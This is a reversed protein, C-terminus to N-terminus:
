ARKGRQVCTVQKQLGPSVTEPAEAVAAGDTDAGEAIGGSSSGSGSSSGGGGSSSRQRQAARALTLRHLMRLAGAQFLWAQREVDASVMNCLVQTIPLRPYYAGRSQKPSRHHFSPQMQMTQFTYCYM